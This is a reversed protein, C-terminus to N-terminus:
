RKLAETKHKGKYLYYVVIIGLILVLSAIYSGEAGFDGGSLQIPGNDTVQLVAPVPDTGSVQFGYVYGQFFNWSMHLGIPWWLGGTLERAVAFLIGALCINIFPYPTEFMNPNLSHMFAFIMSSVIIAPTRGYHYKILGQVYGRSFLEESLAVFLFLVIGDLLSLILTQNWTSAEWGIGGAAWILIASISMLIFGAFFGQTALTGGFQQKLGLSWGHNREFWTYMAFVSGIFAAIQLYQTWRAGTISTVDDVSAGSILACITYIIAGVMIIVIPILGSLVIKGVVSFFKKILNM